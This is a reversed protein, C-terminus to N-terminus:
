VNIDTNGSFLNNDGINVSNDSTRKDINYVIFINSPIKEAHNIIKISEQIEKIKYSISRTLPHLIERSFHTVADSATKAAFFHMTYTVLNFDKNNVRLCFQYLLADRIDEDVPLKFIKSGIISGGTKHGTEWWGDFNADIDKLPSTIYKMVNDTECFHILIELRTDFSHYNSSLVDSTYDTFKQFSTNITKREFFESM